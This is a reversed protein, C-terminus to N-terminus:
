LVWLVLFWPFWEVQGRAQDHQGPAHQRTTIHDSEGPCAVEDIRLHSPQRGRLLVSQQQMGVVLPCVLLNTSQNLEFAPCSAQVQRVRANDMHM